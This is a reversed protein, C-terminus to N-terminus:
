VTDLITVAVSVIEDYLQESKDLSRIDIVDVAIDFEDALLGIQTRIESFSKECYSWMKIVVDLDSYQSCRWSVSSGYIGVRIGHFQSFYDALAGCVEQMLPHIHCANLYKKTTILPFTVCPIM